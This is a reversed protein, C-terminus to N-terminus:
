ISVQWPRSWKGREKSWNSESLIQALIYYKKEGLIQQDISM